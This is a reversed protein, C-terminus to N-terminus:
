LLANCIVAALPKGLAAREMSTAARTVGREVAGPFFRLDEGCALDATTHIARLIVAEHELPLPRKLESWIIELSRTEIEAPAVRQLKVHM